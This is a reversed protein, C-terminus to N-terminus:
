AKESGLNRKIKVASRALELDQWTHIDIFSFDDRNVIIEVKDGIRKGQRWLYARSACSLGTDERVISRRIQRSSYESMWDRLRVWRGESNLEWFNKHTETGVFASEVEPSKELIEICDDIWHPNRFIDTATLFVCIDVTKDWSLEFHRLAHQLASETTALDSSLEAPRRFPVLAGLKLAEDAIEDDDTSVLIHSIKKSQKAHGIVRGLLSEGDIKQLNKRKLGKSGGRALIVALVTSKV